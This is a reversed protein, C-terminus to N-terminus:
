AAATQVVSHLAARDVVVEQGLDVVTITTIETDKIQLTPHAERGNKNRHNHPKSLLM